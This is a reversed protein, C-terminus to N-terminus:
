QVTVQLSCSHVVPTLANTSAVTIQLVQTGLPTAGAGAGSLTGTSTGSSNNTADVMGLGCGGSVIGACLVLALLAGTNHRLRPVCLLLMGSAVAIYLAGGSRIGEAKGRVVAATAGATQLTLITTGSGTLTAPSFTCTIQTGGPVKCGFQLTDSFSGINSVVLGVTASGGQKVVVSSVSLATSFDAMVVAVAASSSGTYVEDGSYVAVISNAGSRLSTTSLTATGLGPGSGSLLVTGLTSRTGSATSYFTVTGTPVHTSTEGGSVTQQVTATLTVSSGVIPNEPSATAAVSTPVNVPAVTIAVPSASTNSQAYNSDGLYVATIGHTGVQLASSVITATGNALTGTAIVGQMSSAVAVTGTPGGTSAQTAGVVQVNFTVPKGFNVTVPSATLTTITEITGIAQASGPSVALSTASAYNSDGAYVATLSHTGTGSLSATYTAAGNVLTATGVPTGNDQITIAGTPTPMTFGSAAAPPPLVAISLPVSAPTGTGQKLTVAPTAAKITVPFSVQDYCAFSASTTCKAQWTFAGAAAAPVPVTATATSTTSAGLTATAYPQSTGYLIVAVQGSPTGVGSPSTVSVAVPIVDGLSFPGAGVSVSVAANEPQISVTDVASTSPAFTSDGSYAGTIGYSGGPLTNITLSAAGGSLAVSGLSGSQPSSFTVTGTPTGAFANAAQVAVSVTLPSGHTVSNSSVSIVSNTGTTGTNLAKLLAAINLTGLGDSSQWTGEPVSADAHSVVEGLPAIQYVRPAIEGVRGSRAALREIGNALVQVNQALVADPVARTTSAPLGPAAQWLPRPEATRVPSVAPASALILARVPADQVKATSTIVTIGQAAAQDLVGTFADGETTGSLVLAARDNADVAAALSAWGAISGDEPNLPEVQGIARIDGRIVAPIQQGSIARSMPFGKITASPARLYVREGSPAVFDVQLGESEAWAQVRAIQEAPAGFQAAYALPALWHHYGPDGPTQLSVLLAQLSSEQADSPRLEIVLDGAAALKPATSRGAWPMSIGSAAEAARVIGQGLAVPGRM